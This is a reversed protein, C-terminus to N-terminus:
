EVKKGTDVYVREKVEKSDTSCYYGIGSLYKQESVAEYSFNKLQEVARLGENINYDANFVYGNDVKKYTFGDAKVEKMREIAYFTPEEEKTPEEVKEEVPKAKEEKVTKAKKTKAVPAEEKKDEAPAAEEQTTQQKPKTQKVAIVIVVVLLAIALILLVFLYWYQAMFEGFPKLAGLINLAEM